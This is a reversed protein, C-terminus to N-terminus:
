KKGELLGDTKWQVFVNITSDSLKQTHRFPMFGKEGPNKQIRKIMEDIEDKASAYTDLPKKNGKPPIHCPSCNSAILPQVNTIYTIKAPQKSAAKRTATCFQFVIVIAPIALICLKKM